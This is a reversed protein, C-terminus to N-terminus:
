LRMSGRSLWFTSFPASLSQTHVTYSSSTASYMLPWSSRIFGNMSVASTDPSTSGFPAGVSLSFRVSSM